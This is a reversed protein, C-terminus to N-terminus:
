RESKSAVIKRTGSRPRPEAICVMGTSAKLGTDAAIITTTAKATIIMTAQPSTTITVTDGSRRAIGTTIVPTMITTIAEAMGMILSDAMSVATRSGTTGATHSDM